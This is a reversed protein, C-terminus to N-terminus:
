YKPIQKVRYLVYIVIQKTRFTFTWNERCYFKKPCLRCIFGDLISKLYTRTSIDAVNKICQISQNTQQAMLWYTHKVIKVRVILSVSTMIHSSICKFM